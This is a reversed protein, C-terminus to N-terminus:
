SRRQRIDAALLSRECCFTRAENHLINRLLDITNSEETSYMYHVRPADMQLHSFLFNDYM